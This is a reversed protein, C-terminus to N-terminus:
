WDAYMRGPNFLGHPDCAEKIRRQLLAMARPLPHFIDDRRHTARFMVAHGGHESALRRLIPAEAPGYYWRQAGNWELFWRGPLEVVPTTPPLSLRWLVSEPLELPDHWFSHEQERVTRWFQASAEIEDGGVRARAAQLASPTGCLRVYLQAGDYCTATIPVPLGAWHNMLHIAQQPGSTQTLTIESASRPLVKLSAELIVGLTGLAGTMLRAVDYGAVNKMVEGGCRLLEGHGNLLRMGLVYDRAAGAYPRRPGSFNTALTGGLTATAGFAPPEFPLMQGHQALLAEIEALPTGARATLVLEEPAYHVIGCHQGVPLPAGTPARGYWAKSNGGIIQLPTRAAIAQRVQDQLALSHDTHIAM